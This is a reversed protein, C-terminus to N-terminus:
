PPTVPVKRPLLRVSVSTTASALVLVDIVSAPVVSVAVTAAMAGPAPVGVPVTCNILPVVAIPLGTESVLPVAVIVTVGEELV